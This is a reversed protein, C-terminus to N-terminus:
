SLGVREFDIFGQEVDVSLLQVRITDGVDIGQVRNEALGNVAAIELPVAIYGDLWAAIHNYALKAHNRVIARYVDSDQVSGDAGVVM